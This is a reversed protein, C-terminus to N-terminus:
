KHQHPTCTSTSGMLQVVGSAVCVLAEREEDSIQLIGWPRTLGAPSTTQLSAEPPKAMASPELAQPRTGAKCVHWGLHESDWREWACLALGLGGRHDSEQRTMREGCPSFTAQCAQIHPALSPCSRVPGRAVRPEGTAPSVPRSVQAVEGKGFPNQGGARMRLLENEM